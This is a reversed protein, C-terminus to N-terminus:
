VNASLSINNHKRKSEVFTALARLLNERPPAERLGSKAGEEENTENRHLKEDGILNLLGNISEIIQEEKRDTERDDNINQKNNHTDDSDQLDGATEPFDDANELDGDAEEEEELNDDDEDLYLDSVIDPIAIPAQIETLNRATVNLDQSVNRKAEVYGLQKMVDGCKGQIQDLDEWDMFSTNWKKRIALKGMKDNTEQTIDWELFQFLIKTTEEPEFMLDEKRVIMVNSELKQALGVDRELRHCDPQGACAGGDCNGEDREATKRPDQVVLIVKFNDGFYDMFTKAKEM